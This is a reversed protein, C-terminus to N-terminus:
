RGFALSGISIARFQHGLRSVAITNAEDRANSKDQGDASRCQDGAVQDVAFITRRAPEELGAIIGMEPQSGCTECPQRLQPPQAHEGRDVEGLGGRSWRSLRM